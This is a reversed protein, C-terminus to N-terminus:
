ANTLEKKKPCDDHMYAVEDDRLEDCHCHELYKMRDEHTTPIDWEEIIRVGDEDAIHEVGWGQEEVSRLSLVLSPFQEAMADFVGTPVGWATNFGYHATGPSSTDAYVDSADWKVGWNRVNWDYWWNTDHKLMEALSDKKPEPGWYEDMISEDPRVFNAFSLETLGEGDSTLLGPKKAQSVFRQVEQEDGTITLTNYVWNPM